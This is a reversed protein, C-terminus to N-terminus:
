RPEFASIEVRARDAALQGHRPKEFAAHPFRALHHSDGNLQNAGAISEARPAASEIPTEVINKGDLVIDGAHDGIRQRPAHACARCWDDRRLCRVGVGVRQIEFPPVEPVLTGTIDHPLREFAELLRDRHIWIESGGM